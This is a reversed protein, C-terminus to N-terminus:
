WDKQSPRKRRTAVQQWFSYFNGFSQGFSGVPTAFFLVTYFKILSCQTTTSPAVWEPFIMLGKLRAHSGQSFMSQDQSSEDSGGRATEILAEGGTAEDDKEKANPHM